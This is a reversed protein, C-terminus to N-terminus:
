LAKESALEREFGIKTLDILLSSIENSGM